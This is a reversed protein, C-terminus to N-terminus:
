ASPVERLWGRTDEARGFQIDTLHKRLAQTRPGPEGDGVTAEWEPTKLGM